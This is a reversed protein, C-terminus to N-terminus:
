DLSGNPMYELVLAKLNDTFCGTIVKTLNRHRLNKLLDCEVGFSELADESQNFVKVAIPMGDDLTGKYVSGISGSGILNSQSFSCTARSLQYYSIRILEALPTPIDTVSPHKRKTLFSM